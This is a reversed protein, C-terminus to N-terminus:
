YDFRDLFRDCTPYLPYGHVSCSTDSEIWIGNKKVTFPKEDEKKSRLNDCANCFM